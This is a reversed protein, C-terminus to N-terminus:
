LDAEDGNDSEWPRWSHIICRGSTGHPQFIRHCVVAALFSVGLILVLAALLTDIDRWHDLVLSLAILTVFYLPCALVGVGPVFLFHWASIKHACLMTQRSRFFCYISYGSAFAAAPFFIPSFLLLLDFLLSDKIQFPLMYQKRHLILSIFTLVISANVMLMHFLLLKIPWRQCPGSGGWAPPSRRGIADLVEPGAIM